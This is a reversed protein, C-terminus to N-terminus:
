YRKKGTTKFRKFLVSVLVIRMSHLKWINEFFRTNWTFFKANWNLGFVVYTLDFRSNSIYRISGFSPIEVLFRTGLQYDHETATKTKEMHKSKVLLTFTPNLINIILDLQSLITRRWLQYIYFSLLCFNLTKM